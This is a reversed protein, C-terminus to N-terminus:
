RNGDGEVHSGSVQLNDIDLAISARYVDVVKAAHYRNMEYM